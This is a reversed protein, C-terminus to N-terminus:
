APGPCWRAVRPLLLSAGCLVDRRDLRAWLTWLSFSETREQRKTRGTPVNIVGGEEEEEEKDRGACSSCKHGGEEPLVPLRQGWSGGSILLLCTWYLYCKTITINHIQHCPFTSSFCINLTLSVWRTNRQTVRRDLLLSICLQSVSPSFTLFMLQIFM